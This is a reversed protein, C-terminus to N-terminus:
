AGYYEQDLAEPWGHEPLNDEWEDDGDQYPDEPDYPRENYYDPDETQMWFPM